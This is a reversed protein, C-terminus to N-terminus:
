RIKRIGIQSKCQPCKQFYDPKWDETIESEAKLESVNDVSADILRGFGCVPCVLQKKSKKSRVKQM